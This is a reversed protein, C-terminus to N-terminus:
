RTAVLTWLANCYGLGPAWPLQMCANGFGADRADDVLDWGFHYFCLIGGTVPDGHYEPELMHEVEGDDGIRARVITSANDPIFPATLVLRGGPRIVRAFEALAARYDPVHELVDFSVVVDLSGDDMTLRTVDEFRIRGQGDFVTALQTEMQAIRERDTTFESGITDPYRHQLWAFPASAQETIYVAASRPMGELALQLGARVRANHGCRGCTMEERFNAEGDAPISISFRIACGCLACHGEWLDDVVLQSMARELLWRDRYRHEDEVQSRVWEDHSHFAISPPHQMTEQM